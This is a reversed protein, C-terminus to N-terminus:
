NLAREGLNGYRHFSISTSKENFFYLLEFRGNIIPHDRIIIKAYEAAKADILEDEGLFRIREYQIISQAFDQTSEQKFRVEPFLQQALEIATNKSDFSICLPINTTLSALITGFLDLYTDEQSYRYGLSHIKQYSFLNDEGRVHVFERSTSFENQYHYSYSQLMALLKSLDEKPCKDELRKLRSELISPWLNTDEADQSLNLFQTIYNYTGVKRGFGVASKKIGGFPQRLVIAGTSPKNIYINGAQINQIYYEWERTDLSELASTLGYGTSNAIRIADKLDKARMVSLIPAFLETTHMFSGEKVGYKICPRLLNPNESEFKPELVWYEGDDLTEIARQIKDNIGNALTGLKNKFDFPNGVLLSNAADVLTKKFNEDRYVEDELILLSTASCKQGSNSFASHIINKIASDRDAMKTVITANKGGTEASLLLKPNNKLIEYATEEGGTLVCFDVKGLLHSSINQGSSPLYILFDKDFGADWFCECIKYGTIPSLSSPKFIVKNGAALPAAITGVPIGIPFNWPAITVGIGKPNFHTKPNQEQLVKLSHPYFELFDIAESVEADIELFTKGVELAAIGILDGRRDRMIQATKALLNALEEFSYIRANKALHFAQTIGETNALYVKGIEQQTIKNKISIHQDHPLQKHATPYISLNSLNEFKSKIEQAWQRNASLIFDTDPENVFHHQTSPLPQKCRRDQTRRPQNDIQNIGAISNLFIEKQKKWNLDNVKLNFFHRMFNDQSTNEDLRRVLYAIANNFHQMDCVPAYLILKHMKSLEQSAQMSMGELMEFTFYDQACKEQIRNYAYAIEFLNHSAIGINIYKFNDGELIFDLMKKYNSDTDVKNTFTPLEWGRQSAITEEAEMNAGKVFRIKIPKGGKIVREKSFQHLIKLYHLSDPIYAQLVIGAQLDEFEGIAEMFSAVTLELDRYEEMDLNIFKPIKQQHALAYLDKLRSVIEKKSYDFDIINIQSFITTIKISIYTIDPSLIAEKYKQIRYSAEDEGLVEEGIFNLNITINEELRKHIHAKLKNPDADLVMAKTDNRIQSVFFGVSIQPLYKGFTLFLLLLVKESPSFFDAIGYKQLTFQILEFSKSADSSRFSKDLLEILMVKNQPNELLKQMKHQFKREEHSMKQSITNQLNEAMQLSQQIM